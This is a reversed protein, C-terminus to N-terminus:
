RPSLWYCRRLQFTPCAIHSSRTCGAPRQFCDDIWFPKGEDWSRQGAERKQTCPPTHGVLNTMTAGSASSATQRTQQRINHPHLRIARMRYRSLSDSMGGVTKAGSSRKSGSEIERHYPTVKIAHLGATFRQIVFPEGPLMSIQPAFIHRSVMQWGAHSTAFLLIGSGCARCNPFESVCCWNISEVILVDGPYGRTAKESLSSLAPTPGGYNLTTQIFVCGAPWIQVSSAQEDEPRSDHGRVSIRIVNRRFM